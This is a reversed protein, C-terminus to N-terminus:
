FVFLPKDSSKMIGISRKVELPQLVSPRLAKLIIVRALFQVLSGQRGIVASHLNILKIQICRYTECSYIFRLSTGAECICELHALLFLQKPNVSPLNNFVLTLKSTRLKAKGQIITYHM